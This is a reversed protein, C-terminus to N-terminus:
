KIAWECKVLYPTCDFTHVINDPILIPGFYTTVKNTRDFQMWQRIIVSDKKRVLTFGNIAYSLRWDDQQRFRVIKKQGIKLKELEKLIVPSKSIYSHDLTITEGNGFCYHRLVKSAEPFIFYGVCIMGIVLIKKRFILFSAGAFIIFISGLLKKKRKM